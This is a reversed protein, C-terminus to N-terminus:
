RRRFQVAAANPHRDTEDYQQHRLLHHGSLLLQSFTTGTGVGGIPGGNRINNFDAATYIGTDGSPVQNIAQASVTFLGLLMVACLLLSLWRKM